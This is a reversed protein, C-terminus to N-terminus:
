VKSLFSEILPRTQETELLFADHGYDSEIEIYSVPKKNALLAEAIKRTESPPYLWDSSYSILLMKATIPACALTLDGEGYLSADFYDMARTLYLYSNADFRRVFSRGQHELYSEVSFENNLKYCPHTGNQFRRGFKGEMSNYSLYTIHGLMRALELGGDPPQSHYYDGNSFYPDCLIAQRGVANFALGQAGLRASAALIIASSVRDPYSITWALAQQGGLSGGAVALLKNLGLYDQLRVQLRVWDDVTIVPFDLAYPKGTHPNKEWPGTTGYCSGLINACVLYYRNTDFAKSPGVMEDWWGPRKERWPRNDKQWDADWGAAHADGSLAHLIFIANDKEPSLKGYTEYEVTVPYLQAGCDLPLPNDKDALVVRQPRTWGVSYPSDPLDFGAKKELCVNLPDTM